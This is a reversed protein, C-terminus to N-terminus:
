TAQLLRLAEAHLHGNSGIATGHELETNGQFTSFRGGAEEILIRAVALDWPKVGCELWLEAKGDAVLTAAALDGLGRTSAVRDVMSLVPGQFPERLLRSTEGLSLTSEHWANIGSVQLRRGDKFAGGGKSAWYVESRAPLAMAGAIVTGELELAVMPGWFEGGRAFGRTGDIPDVIWRRSSRPGHLGSEEALVSTGPDEARLLDLIAEECEIDAKTVVSRDPKTQTEVDSRFHTMALAAATKVARTALDVAQLPDM